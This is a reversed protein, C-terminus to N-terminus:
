GEGPSSAGRPGGRSPLLTGALHGSRLVWRKIRPGHRFRLRLVEVLLQGPWAGLVVYACHVPVVDPRWVGLWEADSVMNLRKIERDRCCRQVTWELLLQGPSAAAHREDYAVKYAACEAGARVCFLSAICEGAAYLAHIECRSDVGTMTALARFFREVQPRVRIASQSGTAGKWGSAELDLFREFESALSSPESAAVFRVDGMAALKRHANRLNSRFKRSLKSALEDLPRDCDFSASAGALDTCYARGRLARLCDWAASTQLIRGLLLLAPRGPAHRLFQVVRPLLEARADDAPCIVDRLLNELDWPLDWVRTRRGLITAFRLELPCIARVRESDTLALCTYRGGADSLHDFYAVHSEYTHHAARDPMTHLLRRWDAELRQLGEKGRFEVIGWAPKM